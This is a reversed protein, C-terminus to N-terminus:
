WEFYEDANNRKLLKWTKLYFFAMISIVLLIVLGIFPCNAEYSIIGLKKEPMGGFMDSMSLKFYVVSGIQTQYYLGDSVNVEFTAGESNCIFVNKYRLDVTRMQPTANYQRVDKAIVTCKRSQEEYFYSIKSNEVKCLYALGILIILNSLRFLTIRKMEKIKGYM